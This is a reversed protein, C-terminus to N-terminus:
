FSFYQVMELKSVPLALDDNTLRPSYHSHDIRNETMSNSNPM